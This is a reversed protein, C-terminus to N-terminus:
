RWGRRRWEALLCGFVLTMLLPWLGIFMVLETKDPEALTGFDEAFFYGFLVGGITLYLAALILWIV